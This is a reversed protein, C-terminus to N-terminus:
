LFSCHHTSLHKVVLERFFFIGWNTPNALEWPMSRSVITSTLRGVQQHNQHSDPSCISRCSGARGESGRISHHCPLFSYSWKSSLWPTFCIYFTPETYVKQLYLWCQILGSSDLTSFSLPRRAHTQKFTAIASGIRETYNNRLQWKVEM